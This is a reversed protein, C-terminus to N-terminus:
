YFSIQKSNSPSQSCLQQVIIRFSYSETVNPFYGNTSRFYSTAVKLLDKELMKTLQQFEIIEQPVSNPGASFIQEINAPIEKETLNM